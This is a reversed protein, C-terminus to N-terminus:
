RWDCVLLIFLWLALLTTAVGFGFCCSMGFALWLAEVTV